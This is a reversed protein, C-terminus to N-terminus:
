GWKDERAGTWGQESIIQSILENFLEHGHVGPLGEPFHM